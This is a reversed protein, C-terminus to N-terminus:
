AATRWREISEDHLILARGERDQVGREVFFPHDVLKGHSICDAIPLEGDVLIVVDEYEVDEVDVDFDFTKGDFTKGDQVFKLVELARLGQVRYARQVILARERFLARIKEVSESHDDPDYISELLESYHSMPDLETHWWRQMMKKCFHDFEEETMAYFDLDPVRLPLTKDVQVISDHIADDYFRALDLEVWAGQAILAHADFEFYFFDSMPVYDIVRILSSYTYELDLFVFRSTDGTLGEVFWDWGETQIRYPKIAGYDIIQRYAEERTIYVAIM